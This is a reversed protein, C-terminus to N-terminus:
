ENEDEIEETLIEHDKPTLYDTQEIQTPHSGNKSEFYDNIAGRIFYTIFCMVIAFIIKWLNQNFRNKAALMENVSSALGTMTDTLEDINEATEKFTTSCDSKHKALADKVYAFEKDRGENATEVAEIHKEVLAISAEFKDIGNQIKNKNDNIDVKIETLKDQQSAM